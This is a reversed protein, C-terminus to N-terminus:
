IKHGTQSEGPLSMDHRKREHLKNDVGTVGDIHEVLTQVVHKMTMEPVYGTLLVLGDTVTVDVLSTDLDRAEHLVKRVREFLATDRSTPVRVNRVVPPRDEQGDGLLTVRQAASGSAVAADDDAAGLTGEPWNVAQSQAPSSPIRKGASETTEAADRGTGAYDDHPGYSSQRGYRPHEGPVDGQPGYGSEEGHAIEPAYGHGGEPAPGAHKGSKPSSAGLWAPDSHHQAHDAQADRASSQRAELPAETDAATTDDGDHAGRSQGGLTEADGDEHTLLHHPDNRPAPVAEDQGSAAPSRSPKKAM